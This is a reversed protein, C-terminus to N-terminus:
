PTRAGADERDPPDDTRLRAPGGHQESPVYSLPRPPPALCARDDDVAFHAVGSRVNHTLAGRWLDEKTVEEHTVTKLVDPGTVFM